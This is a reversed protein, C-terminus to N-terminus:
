DILKLDIIQSLHYQKKYRSIIIKKIPDISKISILDGKFQGNDFYKVYLEKQTEIAEQLTRNLDELRDELLQPMSAKNMNFLMESLMDHFGALGDFPLWKIIGRDHYNNM